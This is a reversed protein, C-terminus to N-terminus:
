LDSNVEIDTDHLRLSFTVDLCDHSEFGCNVLFLLDTTCMVKGRLWAHKTSSQHFVKM